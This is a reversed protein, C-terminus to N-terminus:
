DRWSRWFQWIPARRDERKKKWEAEAEHERKLTDANLQRRGDCELINAGRTAYGIELDARTPVRDNPLQYLSCPRAGEPSIELQPPDSIPASRQAGTACGSITVAFAILLLPLCLSRGKPTKSPQM